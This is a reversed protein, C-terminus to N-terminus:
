SSSTGSWAWCKSSPLSDRAIVRAEASSPAPIHKDPLSVDFPRTSRSSVPLAAIAVEIGKGTSILGFPSAPADDVDVQQLPGADQSELVLLSVGAAFAM